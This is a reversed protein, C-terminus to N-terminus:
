KEVMDVWPGLETHEHRVAMKRVSAKRHSFHTKATPAVVPCFFRLSPSPRM